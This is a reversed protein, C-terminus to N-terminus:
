RWESERGESFNESLVVYNDPESSNKPWSALEGM